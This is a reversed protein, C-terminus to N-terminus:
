ALEAITARIFAEFSAAVPRVGGDTADLEVVQGDSLAFGHGVGQLDDGFVLVAADTGYLEDAPVVGDYLQYRDGFSGAGITGLFELFDGPAGPWDRRIAEIRAPSVPVLADYPTGSGRAAILDGFRSM